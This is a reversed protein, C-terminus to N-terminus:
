FLYDKDLGKTVMNRVFDKMMWKKEHEKERRLTNVQSQYLQRNVIWHPFPPKGISAEDSKYKFANLDNTEVSQKSFNINDRFELEIEDLDDDLNSKDLGFFKTSEKQQAKNKMISQMSPHANLTM